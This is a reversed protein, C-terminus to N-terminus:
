KKKEEAAANRQCIAEADVVVSEHFTCLGRAGGNNRRRAGSERICRPCLKKEKGDVTLSLKFEREIQRHTAAGTRVVKAFIARWGKAILDGFPGIQTWEPIPGPTYATIKRARPGGPEDGIWLTTVGQAIVNGKQDEHNKGPYFVGAPYQQWAKIRPNIRQLGKVLDHSPIARGLAAEISIGSPASYLYTGPDTEM